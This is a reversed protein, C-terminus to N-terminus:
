RQDLQSLRNEKMMILFQILAIEYRNTNDQIARDRMVKLEAATRNSYKTDKEIYRLLISDNM